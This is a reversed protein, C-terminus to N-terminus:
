LVDVVTKGTISSSHTDTVAITQNGVKKLVLGTFTHVGNNGATFTYNAPLHAQSDSSTFRITGTYGTVVNGYADEVTVTLSFPVGPQVSAPASLVFKSATAPKVTIGSDAGHLSANVTDTATISQTGATKLTASFTHKGVDASTFTYNAPLVAKADSSTFRVTGTYGADVTGDPNLATVTFTGPAGATTASPFGSITLASAQPAAPWNAGNMLVSVNLGDALALDLYGDGNFDAATISDASSNYLPITQSATFTGDGNGLLVSVNSGWYYTRDYPSGRGYEYQAAVALDLKGDGNLDGMVLSDRTINGGQPLIPLLTYKAAQFTGNGLLVSVGAANDYGGATVLDLKGDGNVDGVAVSGAGYAAVYTTPAALTGDGNGLLVSVSASNGTVIDVKGSGTLDGVAVSGPNPGTAFAAPPGFTGDGNGPLVSVTNPENAVVLDQIGNHALDAAAVAVSPGAAAYDVPATFSIPQGNANELEGVFQGSTPNFAEIHGNGFDGVLLDNSFSGFNGPAMAVAWPDNLHTNGPLILRQQLQGDANFVDVAGDGSVAKGALVKDVPAYEVYLQNGIDQINFPTYDAPLDSDTFNGALNTVLQFNSNYVDIGGAFNAAYLLPAGAADTAIALGTYVASQNHVMVTANNGSSWGSITGDVTDFLFHSSTSPTNPTLDFTNAGGNNYVTGTPSKPIAFLGEDPNAPIDVVLSNVTAIPNSTNYLTSTGTGQNAVWWAGTASAALGWPNVLNPDQVQAPTFQTNDSVLNTQVVATASLLSRDELSELQPCLRARRRSITQVHRRASPSSRKGNRLWSSFM